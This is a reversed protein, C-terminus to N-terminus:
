QQAAAVQAMRQQCGEEEASRLDWAAAGVHVVAAYVAPPLGRALAARATLPSLSKWNQSPSRREMAATSRGPM